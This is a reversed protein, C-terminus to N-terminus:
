HREIAVRNSEIQRSRDGVKLTIVANVPGVSNYGTQNTLELQQASIELPHLRLTQPHRRELQIRGLSDRIQISQIVATVDTEETNELEIVVSAFAIARDRSPQVGPPAKKEERATLSIHKVTIGDLTVNMTKEPTSSFSSNTLLDHNCAILGLTILLGTILNKM